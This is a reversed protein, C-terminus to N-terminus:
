NDDDTMQGDDVLDVSSTNEKLNKWFDRRNPPQMLPVLKSNIEQKKAPPIGRAENIKDFETSINYKRQLFNLENYKLNDLEKYFMNRSGRQFKVEIVQQLKFNKLEDDNKKSPQRKKKVWNYTDQGVKIDLAKTNKRSREVVKQYHEFDCVERERKLALEINGHVSDAAMHTHGKTLYKILITEVGSTPSNVIRVLSTYLIWNKNQATCNDAWFVFHKVDRNYRIIKYITDTINGADRGAIEEHWLVCVDEGGKKLNAFTMNFTALRSIFFAEKYQPMIPLVLVKQLDMAYFVKNEDMNKKNAENVDIKYSIISLDSKLKHVAYNALEVLTVPSCSDRLKQKYLSCEECVDSKPTHLSVHMSKLVQRYTELCCHKDPHKENYDTLMKKLTLGSPLYKVNPANHRRYHSVTPYFSNIHNQIADRDCHAKEYKGRNEKVSSDLPAKKKAYVLHTIVADSTYGFTNLFFSKCVRKTHYEEDQLHYVRTENRKLSSGALTNRRRKIPQLTICTSLYKRRNTYNQDWYKNYLNKRHTEVFNKCDYRCFCPRFNAPHKAKNRLSKEKESLHPRKPNKKRQKKMKRVVSADEESSSTTEAVPIYVRKRKKFLTPESSEDYDPDADSDDFCSTSSDM